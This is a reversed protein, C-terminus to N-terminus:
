VILEYHIIRHCNACLPICQKLEKLLASKSSYILVAVNDKKIGIHHFDCCEPNEEFSMGCRSCSLTKKYAVFWLKLEKRKRLQNMIQREKNKAYWTMRYKRQLEKNKTPM